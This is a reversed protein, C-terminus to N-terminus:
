LPRREPSKVTLGAARLRRPAGLYCKRDTQWMCVLAPVALKVSKLDDTIRVVPVKHTKLLLSEFTLLM